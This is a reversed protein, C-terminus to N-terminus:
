PCAKAVKRALAPSRTATQEFGGGERWSFLRADVAKGRHVAVVLWSAGPYLPTDNPAADRRDRASLEATGDPHSHVIAIMRERRDFAEREAALQQRPDLEFAVPSRLRNDIAVFRQPPSGGEMVLGCGEEPYCRELHVLATKMVEAALPGLPETLLAESM